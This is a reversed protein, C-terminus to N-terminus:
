TGRRGTAPVLTWPGHCIEDTALFAVRQGHLQM